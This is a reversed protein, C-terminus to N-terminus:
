GFFLRPSYVAKDVGMRYLSNLTDQSNCHIRTIHRAGISPYVLIEACRKRKGDIFDSWYESNLVDWPLYKLDNPNSYFKTDRSAANGDTFVVDHYDLADLAIEILCLSESDNKLRYLMPNRIKIYTPSYAKIKRSFIPDMGGRLRQVDPDSIDVRKIPVAREHSVLGKRTISLVNDVHTMHWLCEVGYSRLTSVLASEYVRKSGGGSVKFVPPEEKRPPNTPPPAIAQPVDVESNRVPQKDNDSETHKIPTDDKSSVNSSRKESLTQTSPLPAKPKDEKKQEIREKTSNNVSEYVTSLFWLIVFLILWGM